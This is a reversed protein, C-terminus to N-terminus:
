ALFRLYVTYVIIRLTLAVNNILQAVENGEYFWPGCSGILVTQAMLTVVLCLRHLKVVVM